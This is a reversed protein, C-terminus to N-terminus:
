IYSYILDEDELERKGENIEINKEVDEERDEASKKNKQGGEEKPSIQYNQAIVIEQEGVM